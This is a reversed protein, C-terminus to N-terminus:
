IVERPDTIKGTLATAACTAPSALYVFATPNGMRGKFNRNATSICHENDGLLGTHSGPCAGCGPSNVAAGAEVLTKMVDSEIMKLYVTKSGPTVVLRTSPHVKKNKLMKAIIQFDEFRGNTCTGTYVQNIPRDKCDPHDITRTNDVTHPFSVMPTLKSADIKITKIYNADPDADLPKWDKARGNEEMYKRTHKDSPFIGCKAGAEVAMNSIVLREHFPMNDITDGHFELSQYTAGDAGISGILYLILDKAFVGKPFKGTVEVKISEPVRLWTKGLAAAVAVDTSGMGSTFAGFAGGQCTHSDAGVAVDGPRVHKESTIVHCVGEGVDYLKAGTERAFARIRNHDTALEKASSPSSHDIFFIAKNPDKLKTIGMEKIQVISLPGTWDQFYALDVDVIALEGPVVEKGAHSGIVKEVLTKGM